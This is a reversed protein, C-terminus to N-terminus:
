RIIAADPNHTHWVLAFSTKYSIIEKSAQAGIQRVTVV